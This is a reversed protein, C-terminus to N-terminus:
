VNEHGDSVFCSDPQISGQNKDSYEHANSLVSFVGLDANHCTCFGLNDPTKMGKKILFSRRDIEKFEETDPWAMKQNRPCKACIAWRIEAEKKTITKSPSKVWIARLWAAAKESLPPPPVAKVEKAKVMFPFKEAYFRLVDQEPDGVPHFNNLRIDKVKKVLEDFSDGRVIMGFEPFHHGGYPRRQQHKNLELM